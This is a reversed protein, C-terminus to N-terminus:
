YAFSSMAVMVGSFRMASFLKFNKQGPRCVGTASLIAMPIMSSKLTTLTSGSFIPTRTVEKMGKEQIHSFLYSRSNVGTLFDINGRSEAERHVGITLFDGNEELVSFSYNSKENSQFRISDNTKGNKIFELIREPNYKEDYICFFEKSLFQEFFSFFNEQNKLENGNISVVLHTDRNITFAFQNKKM